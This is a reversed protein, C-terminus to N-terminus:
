RRWFPKSAERLAEERTLGVDALLRDNREALDQLERRRRRRDLWLSVTQPIAASLSSNKESLRARERFRRGSGATSPEPMQAGRDKKVNRASGTRDILTRRCLM